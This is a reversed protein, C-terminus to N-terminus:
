PALNAWETLTDIDEVIEAMVRDFTSQDYGYPDDLSRMPEPQRDHEAKLADAMNRLREPPTDGVPPAARRALSAAQRIGWVHDPVENLRRRVWSEHQPTAVLVLHSSIIAQGDLQAPSHRPITLGFHQAARRIERTADLGTEAWTGASRVDAADGWVKQAYYHMAPSRCINGSCVMLVRAPSDTM